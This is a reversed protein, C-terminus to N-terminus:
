LNSKRQNKKSVKELNQNMMQDPGNMKKMTKKSNQKELVNVVIFQDTLNPNSHFSLTMEVITVNHLFDNKNEIMEPIDQVETM